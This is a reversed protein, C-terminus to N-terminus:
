QSDNVEIVQLPDVFQSDKEVAFYVSKSDDKPNFRGIVQSSNVFQYIHVNLEDLYGYTTKSGDSHQLVITKDTLKSQGAFTVIGDQLPSVNVSKEPAIMIGKGNEKFSEAVDGSVPLAFSSANSSVVDNNTPLPLPSGFTNEYWQNVRAFPFEETLAQTTWKEVSTTPMSDAKWTFAVGLFLAVALTAKLLYSTFVKPNIKEIKATSDLFTPYYGHKEEEQPFIPNITKTYTGHDSNALFGRQKKRKSISERVHRVRKTMAKNVM